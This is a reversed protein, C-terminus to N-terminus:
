RIMAMKITKTYTGAEITCFYLGTAVSYGSKNEGNWMLSYNGINQKQNILTTVNRGMVDYIRIKVNANQSLGYVIRTSSNFPNPYNQSIYFEKPIEPRSNLDLQGSLLSLLEDIHNRHEEYTKPILNPMSGYASQVRNISDRMAWESAELHLSGIDIVAFISDSLCDPNQVIREFGTIADDYERLAALTWLRSRHAKWFLSNSDTTDCIGDYYRALRRLQITRAVGDYHSKILGFLREVAVPAVSGDSFNSIIDKYEAIADSPNDIELELASVLADNGDDEDDAVDNPDFKLNIGSNDGEVNTQEIVDYSSYDFSGPVIYSYSSPGTNPAGGGWFNGRAYFTSPLTGTVYIITDDATSFNNHGYDMYPYCDYWYTEHDGNNYISNAANGTNYMIPYAGNAGYMGYQGGGSIDCHDLSPSCNFFLIGAEPSSSTGEGNEIFTSNSFKSSSNVNYAYIGSSKNGSFDCNNLTVTCNYLYMGDTGNDNAKCSDINITGATVNLGENESAIFDCNTLNVGTSSTNNVKLGDELGYFICHDLSDSLSGNLYVEGQGNVGSGMFYIPDTSTGNAVIKGYSILKSGETFRVKVGSNITLTAGVSITVTGTVLKDTTWTASFPQDQARLSWHYLRGGGPEIPETVFVLDGNGDLGISGPDTGNVCVIEIPWNTVETTDLFIAIKREEDDECRRNVVWLYNNDGDFDDGRNRFIGAEAYTYAPADWDNWADDDEDDRITRLTEIEDPLGKNSQTHRSGGDQWQLMQFVAELDGLDGFYDEFWGYVPGAALRGTQFINDGGGDVWDYYRDTDDEDVVNGDSGVHHLLGGVDYYGQDTDYWPEASTGVQDADYDEGEKDSGRKRSWDYLSFLTYIEFGKAGYCLALNAQAYVEGKTLPKRYVKWFASDDIRNEEAVGLMAIYKIPNVMTENDKVANAAALLGSYSGFKDKRILKDFADQISTDFDDQGSNPSSSFHYGSDPVPINWNNNQPGKVAYYNCIIMSPDVIDIYSDLETYTRGGTAGTIVRGTEDEIMDNVHRLHHYTSVEPEDILFNSIKDSSLNPTGDGIYYAAAGKIDDIVDLSDPNNYLQYYGSTNSTVKYLTLDCGGKFEILISVDMSWDYYRRWEKVMISFYGDEDKLDEIDEKTVNFWGDQDREPPDGPDADYDVISRFFRDRYYFEDNLNNIENEPAVRDVFIRFMVVEDDDFPAANLIDVAKFDFTYYYNGDLSGQDPWDPESDLIADVFEYPTNYYNADHEIEWATTEVVTVDNPKPVFSTNPLYEREEAHAFKWISWGKVVTTDNGAIITKEGTAWHTNPAAPKHDEPVYISPTWTLKAKMNLLDEDRIKDCIGGWVNLNIHTLGLNHAFGFRFNAEANLSDNSGAWVRNTDTWAQGTWEHEHIQYTQQYNWFPDFFAGKHM